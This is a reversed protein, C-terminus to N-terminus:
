PEGPGLVALVEVDGSTQNDGTDPNVAYIIRYGAVSIIRQRPDDPDHRYRM